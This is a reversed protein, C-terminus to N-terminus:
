NVKELSQAAVIAYYVYIGKWGATLYALGIDREFKM